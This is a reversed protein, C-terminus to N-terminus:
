GGGGAERPATRPRTLEQIAAVRGEAHELCGRLMALRVPTLPEPADLIKRAQSLADVAESKATAKPSKM